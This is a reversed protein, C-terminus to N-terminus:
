YLLIFCWLISFRCELHYLSLIYVKRDSEGRGLNLQDRNNNFFISLIDYLQYYADDPTGRKFMPNFEESLEEKTVAHRTCDSPRVRQSKLSPGVVGHNFAYDRVAKAPFTGGIHYRRMQEIKYFIFINIGTEYIRHKNWLEELLDRIENGEEKYIAKRSVTKSNGGNSQESFQKEIDYYAEVSRIHAAIISALTEAAYHLFCELVDKLEKKTIVEKSDVEVNCFMLESQTYIQECLIARLDNLSVIAKQRSALM